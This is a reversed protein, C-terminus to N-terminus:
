GRPLRGDPDIFISDTVRVPVYEDMLPAAAYLSKGYYSDADELLALAIEQELTSSYYTATVHGLMKIPKAATPNWVLQAGRPIHRGNESVLGVFSKRDANLGPRELSRKGVFDSDQRQMRDFGFDAPVTRGDLEGTVVHGKEIRMMSLAETGYPSINWPKGAELLAEWVAVTYDAPTHVEYALEGSFTMRILRVPAGAITSNKFGMFPLSDNGVDDPACAAALVRRANPGALAMGGWQDTISTLHVQLDPWVTQAYFELHSMVPGANATTTTMYYHDEAIRTTTGDDLIHGDERLMFGYRCKGPKLSQWRNIYVRELFQAADRGRVEIKGLPSVDVIGVSRRTSRAERHISETMSEGPRPYCQARYWLGATVFRAGATQHWRHLPTRRVPAFAEGTERGAIAGITVPSYPPRFTTTGVTPIEVGLESALIALGNINSTRGQDTGMGLTTYRKLHEVSTYGERAALRVDDATVDNQFDVFRKGREGKPLPVLWLPELPNASQEETSPIDPLGTDTDGFPHASEFGARAGEELCARISFSGKCAGVSCQAQASTGPVFAALENSFELRGQSQSFLHVTPNYGGSVCLLDCELAVPTELGTPTRKAVKIRSLSQGGGASVVVHGFLRQIGTPVHEEAAPGPGQERVDVVACVSVGIAELAALTQYADDNNTFLVARKGSAVGYQHAFSRVASATMVGPTDNGAFVLPRELAGTALVVRRARCWWIRQRPQCPPPAPLHDAIREAVLIMNDDYYGFATSRRLIRVNPMAELEETLREAWEHGPRGEITTTDRLLAGGLIPNDDVLIVRAGTKGAALAAMLGAPGGGAILVDCFAFRRAYHDPDPQSSAKGLGAMRRIVREYTMWLSAPWMFTKYYFGAPLLRSIVGNLAGLDFRLSPWRNQSRAELGEYLLVQTARVNPEDRDGTRLQVLANPEEVGCALVGRPRHYKFSRGVLRVGNALLASALTDGAYGTYRRGDFRFTLLTSEDTSRGHGARFRQQNM